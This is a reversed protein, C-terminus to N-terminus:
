ATHRSVSTTAHICYIPLYIIPVSSYIVYIYFSIPLTLELRFLESTSFNRVKYLILQVLSGCLLYVAFLYFCTVIHMISYDSLFYYCYTSEFIISLKDTNM